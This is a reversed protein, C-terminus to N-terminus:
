TSIEMVYSHIPICLGVALMMNMSYHSFEPVLGSLRGKRIKNVIARFGQIHM